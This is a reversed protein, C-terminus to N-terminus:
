RGQQRYLAHARQVVPHSPDLSFALEIHRGGEEVRGATMLLAGLTAHAEAHEPDIRLVRELQQAAPALQGRHALSNAYSIRSHLAEPNLGFARQFYEGAEEFRRLRELAVGANHYPTPDEPAKEIATLFLPLARGPEGRALWEKGLFSYPRYAEPSKARADEWFGLADRWTENRVLTAGSLALLCAAAAALAARRRPLLDFLAGAAAVFLAVSPLYLRHEFVLELGIISSEILLHLGAWALSFAFLTWSRRVRWALAALALLALLSPLTTAPEFLSRSPLFDHILSLRGPAPWLLLSLYFLLVRPQSLLREGVGFDHREYGALIATVLAEGLWLAAVCGALAVGVLIEKWSRALLRLGAREPRLSEVLLLALPLVAVIPKCGLGLLFCLGCGLWARVRREPRERGWLYLVVAWLHFLAALSTMRQVVYTVAQSQIPHAVFLLAAIWAAWGADEPRPLGRQGPRRALVAFLLWAFAYVGMGMAAHVAINVVHYGAPSLGHLAHNAAFSAYAVPRANLESETAARGRRAPARSLAHVAAM